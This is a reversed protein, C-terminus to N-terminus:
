PRYLIAKALATARDVADGNYGSASEKDEELHITNCVAILKRIKDIGIFHYSNAMPSSNASNIFDLGAKTPKGTSFFFGDAVHATIVGFFDRIDSVPIFGRYLKCQVISREIGYGGNVFDVKKEFILDVGKDYSRQTLNYTRREVLFLIARTLYEFDSFNFSDWKPRLQKIAQYASETDHWLLQFKEAYYPYSAVLCEEEAFSIIDDKAGKAVLAEKIEVEVLYRQQYTQYLKYNADLFSLAEKLNMDMQNM